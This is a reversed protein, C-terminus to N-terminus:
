EDREIGHHPTFTYRVGADSVLHYRDPKYDGPTPEIDTVELNRLFGVNVRQGIDWRQRSRTIM